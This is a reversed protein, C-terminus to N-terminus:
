VSAAQVLGNMSRELIQGFISRGHVRAKQAASLTWGLDAEEVTIRRSSVVILSRGGSNARIGLQASAVGGYGPARPASGAQRLDRQHISRRLEFPQHDQPAMRRSVERGLRNAALALWVVSRYGSRGTRRGAICIIRQESPPAGAPM